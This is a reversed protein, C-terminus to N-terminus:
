QGFPRKLWAAKRNPFSREPLAWKRGPKPRQRERKPRSSKQKARCLTGGEALYQEFLRRAIMLPDRGVRQWYAHENGAHQSHRNTRHEASSLPVAWRDHPKEAMGTPRKGHAISGFRIHAAENPAPAGSVCCPQRRLFALYGPNIEQPERQRLTM